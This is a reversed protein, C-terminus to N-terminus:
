LNCNKNNGEPIFQIDLKYGLKELIEKVDSFGLNKKNFIQPVRQKSVHMKAALDVQSVGEDLMLKKVEKVLQTNDEYLM